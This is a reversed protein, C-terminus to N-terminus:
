VVNHGVELTLAYNNTPMNQNAVISVLGTEAGAALDAGGNYLDHTSDYLRVTVTGGVTGVNRVNVIITLNSGPTCYAMQGGLVDYTIERSEDRVQLAMLQAIPTGVVQPTITFQKTQDIPM